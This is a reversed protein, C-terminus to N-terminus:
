CPATLRRDVGYTAGQRPLGRVSSQMSEDALRRLFATRQAVTWDALTRDSALLGAVTWKDGDDDQDDDDEEEGDGDVDSGDEATLALRLLEPLTVLDRPVRSAPRQLRRVEELGDADLAAGAAGVRM